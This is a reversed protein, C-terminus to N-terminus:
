AASIRAQEKRWNSPSTGHHRGFVRTFYAPDPLGVLEAIETVARRTDRLLRRAAAMRRETIWEQVPRGTRRRVVTTLHGPSVAVEAAVDAPSLHERYRRDITTFVRELLPDGGHRLAAVDDRALRVLETLLLTLHALVAMTHGTDRAKLESKMADLNAEFVPRRAAPLEVRLLGGNREHLFLCLLPHTRWTLWPSAGDDGFATSTFFVAIGDDTSEVQQWGITAGMAVVYAVGATRNYWLAPFNHVQGHAALKEHGVRALSVPPLHPDHPYEYIQADDRRGALRASFRM